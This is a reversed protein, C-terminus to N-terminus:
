IGPVFWFVRRVQARAEHLAARQVDLRARALQLRRNAEALRKVSADAAALQQEISAVTRSIAETRSSFASGTRKVKRYLQFGRLAAFALGGAVAVLLVALSLWLGAM